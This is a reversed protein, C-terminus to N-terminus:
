KLSKAISLQNEKIGKAVLAAIQKAGDLNLHTDDKKGNPYNVNGADVHLFLKVSEADGLNNLLQETKALMDILPVKLSDAVQRTIAPYAGHTDKLIGNKFSRRSIPTLLVPIGKKSRTENVYNVLNMKFDTLSVGVTPKDIKEDNHGFEILVYDGAKLNELIPQWHNEARFSKTSRGNLARNEVKVDGNFFSQLEMGWGTEPYAEPQKNAATSDGIIYLTTQKQIFSFGSLIILSTAAFLAFFKTKM